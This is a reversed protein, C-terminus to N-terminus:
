GKSYRPLSAADSETLDTLVHLETMKTVRQAPVEVLEGDERRLVIGHFIDEEKDGLVSEATGIQSGDTGVVALHRPVVTWAIQTEDEYM